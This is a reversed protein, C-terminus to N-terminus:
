MKEWSEPANPNGGKYRYGEYEAGQTLGTGVPAAGIELPRATGSRKDVLVPVEVGFDETPVNHVSFNGAQAKQADLQYDALKLANDFQQQTQDALLKQQGDLAKLDARAAKRDAGASLFSSLPMNLSVRQNARRELAKRRVSAPDAGRAKQMTQTAADYSAVRADIAAQEEPTRGFPGVGPQRLRVQSGGQRMAAEFGAPTAGGATDSFIAKGYEPPPATNKFVPTGYGGAGSGLSVVSAPLNVGPIQDQPIPMPPEPAVVQSPNPTPAQAAGVPAPPATLKGDATLKGQAQLAAYLGRVGQRLGEPNAAAFDPMALRVAETQRQLEGAKAAATRTEALAQEAYSPPALRRRQEEQMPDM